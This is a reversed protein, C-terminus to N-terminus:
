ILPNCVHKKLTRCAGLASELRNDDITGERHKRFPATVFELKVLESLWIEDDINQILATVQETGQEVHFHKVIASTDFYIKM